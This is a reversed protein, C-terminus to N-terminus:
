NISLLEKTEKKNVKAEKKKKDKEDKQAAYKERQRDRCRLCKTALGKEGFAAWPRFNKCGKCWKIQLNNSTVVWVNVDCQTCLGKNQSPIIAYNNGGIINRPQDLDNGNAGKKSRSVKNTKSSVSCQCAHGCMVCCRMGDPIMTASKSSMHTPFNVLSTFEPVNANKCKEIDGQFRCPLPPKLPVCKRKSMQLNPSLPFGQQTAQPLPAPSALMYGGRPTTGIPSTLFHAHSPFHPPLNLPPPPLAGPVRGRLNRIRDQGNMHYMGRPSQYNPPPPADRNGSHVHRPHSDERRDMGDMPNRGHASHTRSVHPYYSQPSSFPMIGKPPSLMPYPGQMKFQPNMKGNMKVNEQSSSTISFPVNPPSRDNDLGETPSLLRQQMIDEEQMKMSPSNSHQNTVDKPSIFSMPSLHGNFMIPSSNKEDSKEWDNLDGLEPEDNDGAISWSLQPAIELQENFTPSSSTVPKLDSHHIPIFSQDRM